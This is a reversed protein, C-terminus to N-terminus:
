NNNAQNIGTPLQNENQIEKFPIRGLRRRPKKALPVKFNEKDTDVHSQPRKTITSSIKHNGLRCRSPGPRDDSNKNESNSPVVEMTNKTGLNEPQKKNVTGVKSPRGRRKPQNCEVLDQM